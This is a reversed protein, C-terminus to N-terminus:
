LSVGSNYGSCWAARLFPPSPQWLATRVPLELAANRLVQWVSTKTEGGGQRRGGWLCIVKSFCPFSLMLMFAAKVSIGLGPLLPLVNYKCFGKDDMIEKIRGLVLHSSAPTIIEMLCIPFPSCARRTVGGLDCSSALSLLQAEQHCKREGPQGRKRSSEMGTEGDQLCGM